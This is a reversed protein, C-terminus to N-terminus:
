PLGSSSLAHRSQRALLLEPLCVSGSTIYPRLGALMVSRDRLPRHTHCPPICSQDHLACLISHSSLAPCALSESKLPKWRVRPGRPKTQDIFLAHRAHAGVGSVRDCVERVADVVESASM